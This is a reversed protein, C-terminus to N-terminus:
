PDVVLTVAPGPSQVQRSPFSEAYLTFVNYLGNWYDLQMADSWEAYNATVKWTSIDPVDTLIIDGGNNTIAYVGVKLNDIHCAGAPNNMIGVFSIISGAPTFAVGTERAVGDEFWSLTTMDASFDIRITHWLGNSLEPTNVPLNDHSSLWGSVPRIGSSTGSTGGSHNGLYLATGNGHVDQSFGFAFSSYVYYPDSTINPMFLDFQISQGGLDSVGLDRYAYCFAGGSPTVVASPAPNGFGSDVTISTGPPTNLTWGTLNSFDTSYYPVAFNNNYIASAQPGGALVTGNLSRTDFSLDIPGVFGPDRTITLNFTFDATPQGTGSNFHITHSTPSVAVTFPAATDYYTFYLTTPLLAGGEYGSFYVSAMEAEISDSGFFSKVADYSAFPVPPGAPLLVNNTLIVGNFGFSAGGASLVGPNVTVLKSAPITM